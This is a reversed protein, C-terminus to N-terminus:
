SQTDVDAPTRPPCNARHRGVTSAAVPTGHSKLIAAVKDNSIKNLGRSKARILNDLEVDDPVQTDLFNCVKCTGRVEEESATKFDDLARSM